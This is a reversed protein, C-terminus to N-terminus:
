NKKILIHKKEELTSIIEKTEEKEPNVVAIRLKKGVKFFPILEGELSKTKPILRLLDDNIAIMAIDIYPIGLERAKQQVEKEKFEQNIESIAGTLPNNQGSTSDNRIPM